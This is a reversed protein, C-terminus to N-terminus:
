GRDGGFAKTAVCKIAEVKEADTMKRTWGTCVDLIDALADRLEETRVPADSASENDLERALSIAARVLAARNARGDGPGHAWQKHARMLENEAERRPSATAASRAEQRDAPSQSM